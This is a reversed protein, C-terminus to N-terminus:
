SRSTGERALTEFRACLWDLLTDDLSHVRSPKRELPIDAVQGINSIFHFAHRRALEEDLLARKGQFISHVPTGLLAAERNMTGGGSIVLDAAHVLQLGDVPRRLIRFTPSVLPALEALEDPTRPLVITICSSQRLRQVVAQFITEARPDHYHAARAPPRLVVLVANEPCELQQRFGPDPSFRGLYIEEKYGPYGEYRPNDPFVGREMLLGPVLIRSAFREQLGTSVHEYDYMTVTPLGRWAAALVASRSGHSLALDFSRGGLWRTLQGARWLTGAVKRWTAKGYHRGIVTAPLGLDRLREVSFAFDRVTLEVTHGRAELERLLPDFITVHPLNDIDIWFRSM